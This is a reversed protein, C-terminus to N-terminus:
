QPKTQAFYDSSVRGTAGNALKEEREESIQVLNKKKRIWDKLTDKRFMQVASNVKKLRNRAQPKPSKTEQSQVALAKSIKQDVFRPRKSRPSRAKNPVSNEKDYPKLETSRGTFGSDDNKQSIKINQPKCKMRLVWAELLSKPTAKKLEENNSKSCIGRREM